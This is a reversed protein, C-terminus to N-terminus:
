DRVIKLLNLVYEEKLRMKEKDKEKIHDYGMLHYFSHVVMYSLEREFSHGYEIAQEQVQKLSIIMDGLIDDYEWIGKQLMQQIEEKEFMPFSLVDTEKDIDRYQKNFKRINEPNTLTISVFLKEKPLHEIEFCKDLVKLITEEYEQKEKESPKIDLYEIKHM